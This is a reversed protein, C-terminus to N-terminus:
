RFLSITGVACNHAELVRGIRTWYWSIIVSAWLMHELRDVLARSQNLHDQARALFLDEYPTMEPGCGSCAAMFIANMLAPHLSDPHSPPLM